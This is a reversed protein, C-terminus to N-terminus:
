RYQLMGSSSSLLPTKLHRRFTHLTSSSHLSDPLSNWISPAATRFSRSGFILNTLPVKLLNSSSSSFVLLVTLFLFVHSTFHLVMHMVKFTLSALKFKIHWQVPLWHLEHLTNVSNLYPPKQLLEQQLMKPERYVLLRKLHHAMCAPTITISDLDFSLSHSHCHPFRVFQAHSALGLYPLAHHHERAPLSRMYPPYFTFNHSRKNVHAM